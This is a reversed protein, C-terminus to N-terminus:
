ATISQEKRVIGDLELYARDLDDNVITYRYEGRRGMEHRAKKLRRLMEDESDEARARLREELAEMSPPEVFIDVFAAELAAGEGGRRLAERVQGAGQVDIDMLVGRCAGLAKVVTERLTGYRHGHVVAHELFAGKRVDAAFDEDSLFFYDRGDKEGGRPPRTTCSVSYDIEDHEALLRECLTTKGAGSPASVVILLPRRGAKNSM